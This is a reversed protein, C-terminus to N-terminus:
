LQKRDFTLVCGVVIAVTAGACIWLAPIFDGPTSTGALLGYTGGALTVPNYRHVAPSLNLLNLVIVVGGAALLAGYIGSMAIGGLMLCGIMLLGFVWPSIFTVVIHPLTEYGWFYITYAWTVGFAILYSLTWILSAVTFKALIVTHRTLGKTLVNILTGKAFENATLGCFVIILALMGLQSINSFYQAWSDLAVPDPMELIVGGMDMGNLLTPILKATLPNMIGLAVFVAIMSLLRYTRWNEQFEKKCFALYTRM